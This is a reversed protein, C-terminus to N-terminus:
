PAVCFTHQKGYRLRTGELLRLDWTITPDTVVEDDIKFEGGRILLRAEGRTAGFHAVVLEVTSYFCDAGTNVGYRLAASQPKNM